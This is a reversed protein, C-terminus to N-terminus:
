YPEGGPARERYFGTERPTSRPSADGCHRAQNLAPAPQLDRAAREPANASSGHEFDNRVYGGGHSSGRVSGFAGRQVRSGNSGGGRGVGNGTGRSVLGGQGGGYRCPQRQLHVEYRQRTFVMQEKTFFSCDRAFHGSEWCYHGTPQWQFQSRRPEAAVLAEADVPPVAGCVFAHAVPPLRSVAARAQYLGQFADEPWDQPQLPLSSPLHADAEM